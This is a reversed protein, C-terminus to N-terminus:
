GGAFGGDGLEMWQRRGRCGEEGDGICRQVEVVLTSAADSSADSGKVHAVGKVCWVEAQTPGGKDGGMPSDSGCFGSTLGKGRGIETVRKIEREGTRQSGRDMREM